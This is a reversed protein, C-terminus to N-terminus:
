HRAAAGTVTGKAGRGEGNGARGIEPKWASASMRLLAPEFPLADKEWFKHTDENMNTVKPYLSFYICVM